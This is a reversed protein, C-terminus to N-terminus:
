KGQLYIQMGAGARNHPLTSFGLKRYFIEKGPASFLSLPAWLGPPLMTEVQREAVRVLARGLGQRRYAPTVLLDCLLFVFAGDGVVRAMGCLTDDLAARLTFLSRKVSMDIQAPDLPPMGSQARLVEFDKATLTNISIDARM